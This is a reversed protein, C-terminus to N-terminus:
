AWERGPAACELDACAGDDADARDASHFAQDDGVVWGDFAACAIRPGQSLDQPGILDGELVPEGNDRQHFGAAGVQGGLLFDEDAAPMGVM